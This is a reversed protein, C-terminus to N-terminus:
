NLWEQPLKLQEVIYKSARNWWEKVSNERDTNFKSIWNVSNTELALTVFIDKVKESEIYRPKAGSRINYLAMKIYLENAYKDLDIDIGLLKYLDSANKEFWGRHFRCLGTNEIIMEKLIRIAVTKAFEEPESFTPTYNTLYKGAIVLPLVVGPSWYFTPTMYGDEGYPVYVVIDEFRTRIKEVRDKFMNDLEKAAARIGKEAVLKLVDTKKELINLIIKEALRINKSWLSINLASPDLSPIDDIGVEEPKLLGKYVAELLWAVIHGLTILDYGLQDGIDVAKTVLELDLVGIFPGLANFPEYDVKKGRWIKKCAAPCPEGCTEWSKSKVFTEEVFPLWFNELLMDVLKKKIHKPVYMTNYNFLPLLERYHPYNVGFTGGAGISQDYRYKVTSKTVTSVFDTGTIKKYLENLNSINNLEEPLKPKWTGGAIIAVVNHAQALVSGGGGRAAYDERGHILLKKSPDIDVSVIAGYVTRLAAPGVVIPRANLTQITELYRDLLYRILAFAGIYGEYGRYIRELEELEIYDLKVKVIGETNGEITIVIPKSGMGEISVAHVGCGIFKYAVGGMASFHIGKSEPSRFLAILRHSGFLKGGAFPGAGLILANNPSFVDYKWSELEEHIKLGVDIPGLVESINYEKITYSGSSVNIRAVRYM